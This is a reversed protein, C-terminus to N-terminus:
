TTAFCKRLLPSSRISLRLPYAVLYEKGGARGTPMGDAADDGAEDGDVGREEISACGCAGGTAGGAIGGTELGVTFSCDTAGPAIVLKRWIGPGIVTGPGCAATPSWCRDACFKAGM